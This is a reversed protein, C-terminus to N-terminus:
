GRVVPRYSGIRFLTVNKFRNSFTGKAMETALVEDKQAHRLAYLELCM